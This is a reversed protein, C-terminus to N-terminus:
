RGCLDWAGLPHGSGAWRCFILALPACVGVLCWGLKRRNRNPNDLGSILGFVGLRTFGFGILMVGLIQVGLYPGRIGGFFLYRCGQGSGDKREDASAQEHPGEPFSALRSLSGEFAYLNGLPCGKGGLPGVFNGRIGCFIRGRGGDFGVPDVALGHDGLLPCPQIDSLDASIAREIPNIADAMYPNAYANLVYPIMRRKIDPKGNYPFYLPRYVFTVWTSLPAWCCLSGPVVPSAQRLADWRATWGARKWSTAM